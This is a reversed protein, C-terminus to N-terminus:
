ELPTEYGQSSDRSLIKRPVKEKSKDKDEKESVDKIFKGGV